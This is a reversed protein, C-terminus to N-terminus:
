QGCAERLIALRVRVALGREDLSHEAPLFAALVCAETALIKTNPTRRFAPADEVGVTLTIMCPARKM